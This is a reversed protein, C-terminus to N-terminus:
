CGRGGQHSRASDPAPRWESVWPVSCGGSAHSCPGRAVLGAATSAPVAAIVALGVAASLSSGEAGASQSPEAASSIAPGWREPCGAALRWAPVRPVGGRRPTPARLVAASPPGDKETPVRTSAFQSRLPTHYKPTIVFAERTCDLKLTFYSSPAISFSTRGRSTRCAGVLRVCAEEVKTVYDFYIADRGLGKALMPYFKNSNHHESEHGLFLVRIAGEKAEPKPKVRPAAFVSLVVCAVVAILSLSLTRITM